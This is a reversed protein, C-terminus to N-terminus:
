WTEGRTSTEESEKLLTEARKLEARLIAVRAELVLRLSRARMESDESGYGVAFRGLGPGLAWGRGYGAGRSLGCAGSQAGTGRGFGFGRGAASAGGCPGRGRGSMAKWGAPGQGNFNPM